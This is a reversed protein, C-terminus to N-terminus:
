AQTATGTNILDEIDQESLGADTLVNRTDQGPRPAPRPEPPATATSGFRPAPMPQVVGDIARYTSRSTNHPHQPAEHLSLVPTTCADTGTFLEAWEDRPKAAFVEELRRHMAPWSARDHQAGFDPDDDLGLIRLFAAFFQPEICGVAMHKDDACRYARYFPAGGDLLNATRRDHWGGTGLFGDGVARAREGTTESETRWGPDPKGGSGPSCNTRWGSGTATPPM